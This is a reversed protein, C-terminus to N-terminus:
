FWISTMKEILSFIKGYDVRAILSYHKADLHAKYKQISGHWGMNGKFVWKSGIHKQWKPFPVLNWINNRKLAKMEEDMAIKSSELDNTGVVEELSRLEYIKANWHFISM